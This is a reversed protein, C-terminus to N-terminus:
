LSRIESTFPILGTAVLIAAILLSLFAFSVFVEIFIWYARRLRDMVSATAPFADAIWNFILTFLWMAGTWILRMMGLVLTWASAVLFLTQLGRNNQGPSNWSLAAALIAVGTIVAGCILIRRGWQPETFFGLCGLVYRPEHLFLPM